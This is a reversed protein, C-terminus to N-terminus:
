LPESKPGHDRTVSARESVRSFEAAAVPRMLQDEQQSGSICKRALETAAVRSM